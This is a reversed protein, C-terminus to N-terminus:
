PLLLSAWLSIMGDYIGHALILSLTTCFKIKKRCLCWFIGVLATMIIQLINGSFIHFLGFLLSSILIAAAESSVLQHLKHYFFGRFLLEEVAGVALICYGFEYVFQWLMKYRRGNDVFSGLGILHPTLTFVLSMVIGLLIGVLVQHPLDAKSFGLIAPKMRTIRLIILPILAPLWYAIPMTIMRAWLPLTMLIYQNFCVVGYLGLMAGLYGVLISLLNAKKRM